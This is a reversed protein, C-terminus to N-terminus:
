HISANIAVEEDEGFITSFGELGADELQGVTMTFPGFNLKNRLDDNHM